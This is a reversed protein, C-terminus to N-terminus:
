FKIHLYRNDSVGTPTELEQDAIYADERNKAELENLWIGYMRTNDVNWASSTSNYIYIKNEDTAFYRYGDTPNEPKNNALGSSICDEKEVTCLVQRTMGTKGYDSQSFKDGGDTKFIGTIRNMTVTLESCDKNFELVSYMPYLQEPSAGDKGKGAPDDNITMPIIKSFVQAVSPLEKNSKLKYGTAQCMSYSVFGDYKDGNYSYESEKLPTCCRFLGSQVNNKGYNNYLSEPIYPTKTSNLKITTYDVDGINYSTREAADNLDIDWSVLNTPNVGAEDSLNPGMPKIQNKSDTGNWTYKEKIPYSLAYTHKHGGIVLKCNFYELLRSCWYIGRDEVQSLQNINSGLRNGNTPHNRTCPLQSANGNKLSTNTIVTFPMEHMAVVVKRIPKNNTDQNSKLWAYMTEYIPTFYDVNSAYNGSSVVEIGTYINVYQNNSCLGFWKQVNSIPIESNIMVYLVDKTKFYYTSPIYRDENININTTIGDVVVSGTHAKVILSDGTFFKEGTYIFRNPEKETSVDEKNCKETDRVDFCYFYHFFHSSSKDSDNGTGLERPNIPCLDNNGVVNMQELHDFLSVGGNYYDLWENIRAGSQTMDGTNILIPFVKNSNKSNWDTIEQDIKTNLFEASAAWVQYEIWHFGQQDTIQYTRGEYTRPYVTFTYVSNTHEPDPKGDKDPRGVVYEYKVPSDEADPLVVVCKHSTFLVDNGPFRNIMRAYVTNNVDVTYEKRYISKSHNEPIMSSVKTYSQFKSWSSEGEKRIWLYEDFVGCSIWNFCRTNYVDVGFSCTVMNPKERNLQTKDTMVNRNEFSAKPTYRDIKVTEKSFPYGIFEKDLSVIQLDTGKNYRVRSSDKANFGNFAQKAPDLAFMLRFMTNPKITIGVGGGNAYWPNNDYKKSVSAETSFSCSDIFRPNIIINPYDAKKYNKTGIPYGPDAASNIKVLRTDPTLEPLGYTLCFRYAKGDTETGPVQEFSVPKGNDYWEKDFTKVKIFASEDDFEAHKAGRILYTSGAKIVGDLALHHVINEVPNFFHLYVGTLPIDVGSTNELEIFSHTCGHATDTTIPAYFSSIRLRDSRKGADSQANVGDILQTVPPTSKKFLYDSSFGRVAEYNEVDYNNSGIKNLYEEITQASNDKGVLNGETDVKFTFKKKTEDNVFTVDAIPALSIDSLSIIEGTTEDCQANIIIGMKNLAEIIKKDTMDKDKNDDDPKFNSGILYVNGDDAKIHLTKNERNWILENEQLQDAVTNLMESNKVSRIAIHAVYTGDEYETPASPIIADRFDEYKTYFRMRYLTLDEFELSEIAYRDNIDIRTDVLEDLGIGNNTLYGENLKTDTEYDIISFYIYNFGKYDATESAKVKRSVVICFGYKNARPKGELLPAFNIIRTQTKDDLSVLNMKVSTKDTVLYTILKSDSLKYLTLDDYSGDQSKKGDHFVGTCGDFTMQGDSHSVIEGHGIKEFSDYNYEDLSTKFNNNDEVFDLGLTDIAWLPEVDDVNDLQALQGSIATSTDKYSYIGKEFSNKLRYIETQLTNIVSAMNQILNLYMDGHTEASEYPDEILIHTDESGDFDVDSDLTAQKVMEPTMVPITYNSLSAGKVNKKLTDLEEFIGTPEDSETGPDGVLATVTGLGEKVNNIDKRVDEIDSETIYGELDSSTLFDGINEKINDIDSETLGLRDWVEQIIQEVDGGSGSGTVLEWNEKHHSEEIGSTLLIWLESTGKINVVMGQYPAEISGNTLDSYSDVVLRNDLPRTTQVNFNSTFDISGNFTKPM